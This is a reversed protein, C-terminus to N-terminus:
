RVPIVVFIKVDLFEETGDAVAVLVECVKGMSVVRCTDFEVM